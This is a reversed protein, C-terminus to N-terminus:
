LWGGTTARGAGSGCAGRGIRRGGRALKPGGPGPRGRVDNRCAGVGAPRGFAIALSARGPALDARPTRTGPGRAPNRAALRFLALVILGSTGITTSCVERPSRAKSM